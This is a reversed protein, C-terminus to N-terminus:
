LPTYSTDAARGCVCTTYRKNSTVSRWATRRWARLM